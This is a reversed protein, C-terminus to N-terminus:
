RQEFEIEGTICRANTIRQIAMNVYDPNMEIGLSKRELEKSAVMTTGTGLFPDLIQDGKNTTALIIRRLLRIPKQAVHAIKGNNLNVREKSNWRVRNIRWVDNPNKGMPNSTKDYRVLPMRIDEMNYIFNTSSKRYYAIQEYRREFNKREPMGDSYYYVIQNVYHFKKDLYPILYALYRPHGMIMISGDDTLKNFCKEIWNTCWLLYSEASEWRDHNNGFNKGMNYPPDAFVLRCSKDPIEDLLVASDGHFIKHNRSNYALYESISHRKKRLITNM